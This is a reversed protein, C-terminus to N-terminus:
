LPLVPPTFSPQPILKLKRPKLYIMEEEEEEKKLNLNEMSARSKYVVFKGTNTDFHRKTMVGKKKELPFRRPPFCLCRRCRQSLHNVSLDSKHSTPHQISRKNMTANWVFSTSNYLRTALQLGKSSSLSQLVSSSERSTRRELM